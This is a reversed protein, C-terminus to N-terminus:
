KNLPQSDSVHLHSFNPRPATPSATRHARTNHPTNSYATCTRHIPSTRATTATCPTLILHVAAAAYHVLPARTAAAACSALAFHVAVAACHVLPARTAAATCSALAFHVVDAACHVLPARTAAAASPTPALHAVTVTCHALPTRAATVADPTYAPHACCHCRRAHIHPARRLSLALPHICLTYCHRPLAYACHVLPTRTILPQATYPSTAACHVSRPQTTYACMHACYVRVACPLPLASCSPLHVSAPYTFTYRLTRPPSARQVGGCTCPRSAASFHPVALAAGPRRLSVPAAPCYPSRSVPTALCRSPLPM